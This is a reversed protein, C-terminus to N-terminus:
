TGGVRRNARDMLKNYVWIVTAVAAAFGILGSMVSAAGGVGAIAILIAVFIPIAFYPIFFSALGILGWALGSKACERAARFFAAFVFSFV